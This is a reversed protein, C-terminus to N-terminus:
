ELFFYEVSQSSFRVFEIFEPKKRLEIVATHRHNGNQSKGDAPIRVFIEFDSAEIQDYRSLGVVCSLRVMQPFIKVGPNPPYVTVPLWFAKESYPEASIQVKVKETKVSIGSTVTKLAVVRVEESNLDSLVLSDTPWKTIGKLLSEPGTVVVSDPAIKPKQKLLYGKAFSFNHSLEIPVKKTHRNDLNLIINDCNIEEIAISPNGIKGIIESRLQGRSIVISDGSQKLSFTLNIKSSRLFDAILSWGTGTITAVVDTPPPNSFTKNVPLDFYLAVPKETRHIQSLKVLLWLILAIGLCIGFLLRDEGRPFKIPLKKKKKRQSTKVEPMFPM